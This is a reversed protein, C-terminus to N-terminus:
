PEKVVLARSGDAYRVEVHEAPASAVRAPELGMRHAFDEPVHLGPHRRRPTRPLATAGLPGLLFGPPDLPVIAADEAALGLEFAAQLAMWATAEMRFFAALRHATDASIRRKGAIIDSIRSRPMRCGRALESASLALPEMFRRKLYEGPHAEDHPWM